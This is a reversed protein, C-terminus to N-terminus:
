QDGAFLDARRQAIAERDVFEGGIIVDAIKTTNRIDALPDATLLVMDAANGAEITGVGAIGLHSAARGSAAAIAEAPSLGAEVLLELEDHLGFGPWIWPTGDPFAADTGALVPVGARHMERVLLVLLEYHDAMAALDEAPFPQDLVYTAARERWSELLDGPVMQMAADEERDRGNFVPNASRLQPDQVIFTPVIAAGSDVFSQVLDAAKAADYSAVVNGLYEAGLARAYLGEIDGTAVAEKMYVLMQQRLQTENSSAALLLGGFLSGEHEVTTMGARIAESAPIATPNHGAFKLGAKNAADAIAYFEDASLFDRIKVFHVQLDQLMRIADPITELSVQHHSAYADYPSDGDIMPGAIILRPSRTPESKRATRDRQMKRTCEAPCGMDRITTVGAELYLEYVAGDAFTHAHLDWLGPILFKGDSKIEKIDDFQVTRDPEVSDIRGNRVVVTYGTKSEGSRGDIVNVGTLAFGASEDLAQREPRSDLCGTLSAAVLVLVGPWWQNKIRSIKM